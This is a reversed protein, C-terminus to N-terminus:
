LGTAPAPKVVSFRRGRAIGHCDPHLMSLNRMADTGGETVRELHFLRWGSTKTIPQCCISCARGQDWWLRILRKRGELSDMMEHGLRAEFYSEWQPDFPNAAGKIKRHRRIPTSAVDFLTLLAPKGSAPKEGVQTGFVWQRHDVVRFYKRKVWHAGKTPHRRRAWRWLCQWIADSVKSFTRKSVVRQYYNAWGRILPNLQRILLDHRMTASGKVMGRLKRLFRQVNAKAPKILLKGGYKRVNMGLFDFGDDIHTIRTKEPSLSLGREALFQEVMPRVVDTLVERTAGTIVFDDAYRVINVKSSGHRKRAQARLKRELGDLTMNMLTPSIIGGQPTGAQTAYLVQDHLYGAKLWGRLIAKDMPINAILWDHSIEDFCSRIDAELIWQACDSRALARFCQEIADAASRASRFGYSNPDAMTEAIPELALLYLAQQARDVMCPIGLPRQKGNAKPIYIRRLPCPRYGHRKLSSVAELKSKPTSWTIGDVGPTRKGRNETVRKVALAKGSFSHTLLWQLARAKGHKGEQTAKVIRTQLRRVERHCRAWDIDHWHSAHDSSAGTSVHRVTM